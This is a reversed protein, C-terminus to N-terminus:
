DEQALYLEDLAAQRKGLNVRLMLLLSSCCCSPPSASGSRCRGDDGAADARGITLPHITRWINVSEYVFPVIALGFLASRPPSSTRAPGATSGCWCTRLHLDDRAAARDDAQADWQWWVGWAKRGWLPGTVLGM